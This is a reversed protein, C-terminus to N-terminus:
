EGGVHTRFHQVSARLAEDYAPTSERFPEEMEFAHGAGEILVLRARGSIRALGEGEKWPVTLDDKGHVILWPAAVEAAARALDLRERNALFDELLDVSLPLHRGTGQDFVHVVGEQRWEQITEETWRDLHDIAAWTVLADVAPVERASLIAAAGGRSYGLVGIRRPRLPTLEGGGVERLVQSLEDVERSYTNRAFEEMRTVTEDGPGVGNLSFDFSVVAHGELALSTCLSPLFGSSMHGKFGHVVVVAGRPPPGERFRVDGKLAGGHPSRIQFPRHIL